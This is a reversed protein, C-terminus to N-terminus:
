RYAILKVDNAGLFHWDDGSIQIAVVVPHVGMRDVQVLDAEQGAQSPVRGVLKAQPSGETQVIVANVTAYDVYLVLDVQVPPM